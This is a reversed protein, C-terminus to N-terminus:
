RELGAARVPRELARRRFMGDPSREFLQDVGQLPAGLGVAWEDRVLLARPYPELQLTDGSFGPPIPLLFQDGPQVELIPSLSRRQFSLYRPAHKLKGLVVLLSECSWVGGNAPYPNPGVRPPKGPYKVTPIIPRVLVLAAFRDFRALDPRPEFQQIARRFRSYALPSSGAHGSVGSPLAGALLTDGGAILFFNGCPQGEFDCRYSLWGLVPTGPRAHTTNEFSHWGITSLRVVSEATAGALVERVRFVFRERRATTMERSLYDGEFVLDPTSALFPLFRAEAEEPVMCGDRCGIWPESARSAGGIALAGTVLLLWPKRAGSSM